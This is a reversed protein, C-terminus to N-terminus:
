IIKGLPGVERLAFYYNSTNVLILREACFHPSFYYAIWIGAFFFLGEDSHLSSGDVRLPCFGIQRSPLM